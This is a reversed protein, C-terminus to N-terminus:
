PRRREACAAWPRLEVGRARADALEERVEQLTPGPASVIADELPAEVPVNHYRRMAYTGYPFAAELDGGRRALLSERYHERHATM